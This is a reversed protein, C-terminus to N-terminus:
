PSYRKNLLLVPPDTHCIRAFVKPVVIYYPQYDAKRDARHHQGPETKDIGHLFGETRVTIEPIHFFCIEPVPIDNVTDRLFGEAIGRRYLGRFIRHVDYFALRVGGAIIVNDREELRYVICDRFLYYQVLGAIHGLDRYKLRQCVLSVIVVVAVPVLGIGM